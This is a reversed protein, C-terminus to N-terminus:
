RTPRAPGNPVQKQDVVTNSFSSIQAIETVKVQIDEQITELKVIYDYDIACPQCQAM